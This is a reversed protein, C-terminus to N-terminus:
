DHRDVEFNILNIHCKNQRCTITVNDLLSNSLNRFINGLPTQGSTFCCMSIDGFRDIEYARVRCADGTFVLKTENFIVYKGKNYPLLEGDIEYTVDIRDLYKEFKSNMNVLQHVTDIINSHDLAIPLLKMTTLSDFVSEIYTLEKLYNNDTFFFLNSYKFNEDVYKINDKFRHKNLREVHLTCSIKISDGFKKLMDLRDVFFETPHDAHTFLIFKHDPHRNDYLYNIITEFNHHLMAEGGILEIIIKKNDMCMIRKLGRLVSDVSNNFREGGTDAVNYCYSCSKDCLTFIEYEVITHEGVFDNHTKIKKM